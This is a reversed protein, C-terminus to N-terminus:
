DKARNHLAPCIATPPAPIGHPTSSATTCLAHIKLRRLNRGSFLGLLGLIGGGQPRFFSELAHFNIGPVPIHGGIRYVALMLFTFVVRKRLDPISFINKISEFM